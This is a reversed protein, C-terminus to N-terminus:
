LSSVEAYRKPAFRAGKFQQAFFATVYSREIAIARDGDITGLSARLTEDCISGARKCYISLDTFSNHGSGGLVFGRHRNNPPMQSWANLVVAHPDPQESAMLLLPRDMGARRVTEPVTADMLFGARIRSDELMAEATASGGLSHGLMGVRSLDLADSLGRPLINGAASPNEGGAMRHLADLAFRTDAVRLALLPKDAADVSALDTPPEGERPQVPMSRGGPFQVLAADGPHDIAAVIFGRSALEEILTTGLARSSGFAPSYLVVPYIRHTGPLPIIGFLRRPATDAPASEYSHSLCEYGIGSMEALMPEVCPALPSDGVDTAPYWLQVMIERNRGPVFPDERANDILHLSHTGLPGTGGPDPLGSAAPQGTLALALGLLANVALSV